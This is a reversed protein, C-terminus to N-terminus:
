VVKLNFHSNRAKQWFLQKMIFRWGTIESVRHWLQDAWCLAGFPHLSEVPFVQLVGAGELSQKFYTHDGRYASSHVDTPEVGVCPHSNLLLCWGTM